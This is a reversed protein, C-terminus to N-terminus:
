RAPSEDDETSLLFYIDTSDCKPCQLDYDVTQYEISFTASIITWKLGNYGCIGCM